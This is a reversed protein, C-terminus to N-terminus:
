QGKKRGALVFLGTLVDPALKAGKGRERKPRPAREAAARKNNPNKGATVLLGTLVEPAIKAGKSDKPKSPPEREEAMKNFPLMFDKLESPSKKGWVLFPVDAVMKCLLANRLDQRDEPHPEVDSWYRAWDNLERYSMTCELEHVTRGTM